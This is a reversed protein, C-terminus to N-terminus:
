AYWGNRLILESKSLTNLFTVFSERKKALTIRPNKAMQKAAETTETQPCSESDWGPKASVHCTPSALALVIVGIIFM